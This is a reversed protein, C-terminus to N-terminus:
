ISRVITKVVWGITTGTLTGILSAESGDSTVEFTLPTTSGIDNTVNERYEVTSGSWISMITGARVGLPNSVTYDFFAGTYASIPVSYITQSGAVGYSTKVTTNLCPAQYNGIHVTDDDYVELIPLGSIDSVSFLSGILNDSISFLEGNSGEVTLLPETGGSGIISLLNQNDGSMTTQGNVTLGTMVSINSVLDPLGSNQSITFNNNLYTFGTVNSVIGLDVDYTSSDSKTFTLEGTTNDYTAGTTFTDTFGSIFGCVDFTTGSNTGFTVCGTVLDYTGGTVNIDNDSYLAAANTVNFTGGTTNTFTLQQTAFDANGSTVFVNNDSALSRVVSGDTDLGLNMLPSGYPVTGINLKPVYVTDNTTGTIYQGGLIVSRYANLVNLQGGVIASGVGGTIKNTRGGIINSQAASSILSGQDSGIITTNFGNIIESMNSGLIVDGHTNGASGTRIIKNLRGAIISSYFKTGGSSIIESESSAMISSSNGSFIKNNGSSGLIVSSGSDKITNSNALGGILVAGQSSGVISGSGFPTSLFDSKLGGNEKVWYGTSASLPSLDVIIQPEGHNRNIELDTGNLTAGTVFTDVGGGGGGTTTYNKEYEVSVMVEENSGGTNSGATINGRIMLVDGASVNISLGSTELLFHTGNVNANTLTLVNAGGTLDVYNTNESSGNPNNLKGISVEYNFTADVSATTTDLYKLTIRKITLDFPIPLSSNHTGTPSLIGSWDVFEPNSGSAFNTILGHLINKTTIVGGGGGGSTFGTVNFTDGNNNFLSLTGSGSNFTGGTVFNNESIGSLSSLDVTVDSLGNNRELELVTGVLTAGTIFTDTLGTVFGCVDFTSGSNTSFTVCGNSPNYTGGTVNIDNDSYLAAANTVNFTGGTTNTFTLQQTAVNANGSNVFVNNGNTGIIVKGDSDVALNNIPTGVDVNNINLYPVFVTNDTTGTLDEGGLLVSNLGTLLSSNSHIFSNSSTVMTDSGGAYSNFGSSTTGRGMTFSSVGSSNTNKGIAFSCYTSATNGDGFTSSNDGSATTSTGGAFSAVGSALTNRNTAVAYDATANTTTDTIQKVSYNGSSGGSWVLNPTETGGTLPSVDVSFPTFGVTGDFDLSTTISNYTGGTVFTDQTTIQNELQYLCSRLNLFNGDLENFTLKSGKITRLVLPCNIPM